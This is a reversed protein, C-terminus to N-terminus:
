ADSEDLGVCFWDSEGIRTGPEECPIFRRRMRRLVRKGGISTVKPVPMTPAVNHRPEYSGLKDWDIGLIEKTLSVDDPLNARDCM